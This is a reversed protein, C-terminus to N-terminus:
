LHHTLFNSVGIDKVKKENKLEIFTKWTDLRVKQNEKDGAKYKQTGPWHILILDLYQINLRKLIGM